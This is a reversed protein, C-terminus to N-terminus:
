EDGHGIRRHVVAVVEKVIIGGLDDADRNRAPTQPKRGPERHRLAAAM